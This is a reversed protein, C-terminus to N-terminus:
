FQGYCDPALLNKYTNITASLDLMIPLLFASSETSKLDSLDKLYVKKKKKKKLHVKLLFTLTSFFQLHNVLSHYLCPEINNM